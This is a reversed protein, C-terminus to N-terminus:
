VYRNGYVASSDDSLRSGRPGGDRSTEDLEVFVLIELRQESGVVPRKEDVIVPALEGLVRESGAGARLLLFGITSHYAHYNRNSTESASLDYARGIRRVDIADPVALVGFSNKVTESELSVATASHDHSM